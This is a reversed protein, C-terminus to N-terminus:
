DAHEYGFISPIFPVPCVLPDPYFNEPSVQQSYAAVAVVTGGPLYRGDIITGERPAIRPLYYPSGLRLAEHTVANLFSLEALRNQELDGFPDPFEKELEERLMEYYRPQCLMFYFALTM